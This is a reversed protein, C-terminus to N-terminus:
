VNFWALKEQSQEVSINDDLIAVKEVVRLISSENTGGIKFAEKKPLPKMFWCQIVTNLVNKYEASKKPGIRITDILDQKKKGSITHGYSKTIPKLTDISISKLKNM